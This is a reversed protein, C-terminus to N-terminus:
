KARQRELLAAKRRKLEDILSGAQRKTLKEWGGVGYETGLDNLDDESMGVESALADILKRQGDSAEPETAPAQRILAIQAEVALRQAEFISLGTAVAQDIMEESADVPLTVVEEVTTYDDGHKVAVRYTRTITPQPEM